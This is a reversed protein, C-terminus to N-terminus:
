WQAGPHARALSQMETLRFDLHESHMGSKGSSQFVCAAPLALGAEDLVAGILHDFGAKLDAGRVGIGAIAMAEEVPDSCFLENTYPLLQLLARQARAHSQGTGDGFRESPTAEEADLKKDFAVVDNEALDRRSRVVGSKDREDRLVQGLECQMHAGDEAQRDRVDMLMAGARATGNEHFTFGGLNLEAREIVDEGFGVGLHAEEAFGADAALAAHGHGEGTGLVDVFGAGLGM